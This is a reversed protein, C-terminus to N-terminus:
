RCWDKTDHRERLLHDVHRTRDLARGVGHRSVVPHCPCAGVPEAHEPDNSLKGKNERVSGTRKQESTAPVIFGPHPLGRAFFLWRLSRLGLGAPVEFFWTTKAFSSSM